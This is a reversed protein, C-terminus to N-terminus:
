SLRGALGPRTLTLPWIPSLMGFPVGADTLRWAPAYLLSIKFLSRHTTRTLL